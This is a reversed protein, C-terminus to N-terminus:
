SGCQEELNLWGGEFSARQLGDVIPRYGRMLQWLMGAFLFASDVTSLECQWARHGRQM